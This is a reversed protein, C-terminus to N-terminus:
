AALERHMIDDPQIVEHILSAIYVSFEEDEPVSSGEIEDYGNLSELAQNVTLLTHDWSHARRGETRVELFRKVYRGALRYEERDSYSVQENKILGKENKM